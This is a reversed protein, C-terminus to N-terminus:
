QKKGIGVSNDTVGFILFDGNSVSIGNITPVLSILPSNMYFGLYQVQGIGPITGTLELGGGIINGSLTYSSGQYTGTATVNHSADETVTLAPTAGTNFTTAYTGSISPVLTGSFSGADAPSGCGGTTTYTGTMSNNSSNITATGTVVYSGTTNTETLTFSFTQGSVTGSVTAQYGGCSTGSAIGYNTGQVFFPIVITAQNGSSVSTDTQSLIAEIGANPYGAGANQTSVSIFEWKGAIAAPTPTPNGGGSGGGSNSNSGGCGACVLLALSLIVKKM